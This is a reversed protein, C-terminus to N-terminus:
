AEPPLVRLPLDIRFGYPSNDWRKEDSVLYTDEFVLEFVGLRVTPGPRYELPLDFTLRYGIPPLGPALHRRSYSGYSDPDDGIDVADPEAVLDSGPDRLAFVSDDGYIEPAMTEDATTRARGTVVVEWGTVKGDADQQQQATAETFTLEYPGTVILAGPEVPKLLDTRQEFGGALYTLGVILALSLLAGGYVLGRRVRSPHVPDGAPPAWEPNVEGEDLWASPRDPGATQTSSM